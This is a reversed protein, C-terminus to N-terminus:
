NILSLDLAILLLVPPEGLSCAQLPHSAIYPSFDNNKDGVVVM